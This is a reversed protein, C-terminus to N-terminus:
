RQTLEGTFAKPPISQHLCTTNQLNATLVAELKELDSRVITCGDIFYRQEVISHPENEWGAAQPQFKPLVFKLWTDAENPM